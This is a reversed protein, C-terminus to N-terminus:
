FWGDLWGKEEQDKGSAKPKEADTQEADGSSEATTASTEDKAPPKPKLTPPPTYGEPAYEPVRIEVYAEDRIKRLWVETEEGVRREFIEDQAKKRLV